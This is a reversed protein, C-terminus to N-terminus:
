EVPLDVTDGFPDPAGLPAQSVKGSTDRVEVNPATIGATIMAGTTVTM